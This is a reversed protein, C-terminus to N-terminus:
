IIEWLCKTWAANTDPKGFTQDFSIPYVSDEQLLTNELHYTTFISSGCITRSWFLNPFRQVVDVTVKGLFFSILDAILFL